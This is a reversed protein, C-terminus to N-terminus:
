IQRRVGCPTRPNFNHPRTDKARKRDDCGARPAHISIPRAAPQTTDRRRDCGARPAHISIKRSQRQQIRRRHTAGRVPHTSQFRETGHNCFCGDSDCGARPAHISIRTNYQFCFLGNLRVGCPTRPNFNFPAALTSSCIATAGRVPHTSQFAWNDWYLGPATTAGRVPHTSQFEPEQLVLWCLQLTAGRVPHTSQFEPHWFWKATTSLRVGCPTRPNFDADKAAEREEKNDCGARPAHISIPETWPKRFWAQPRVGCPTRPNFNLILICLSAWTTTAGRM